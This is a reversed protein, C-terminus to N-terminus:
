WQVGGTPLVFRGSPQDLVIDSSVENGWASWGAVRERAFLEIRPGPSVREIMTRMEAPKESHRGKQAMFSSRIQIRKGLPTRAYPIKGRVGFLCLEHTNRIYQGLGPAGLKIWAVNNVYRFGWNQMCTLGIPLLGSPVWLWLHADEDAIQQGVPLLLIEDSTMLPYHVDPSVRKSWGSKGNSGGRLPWPPDAYVTKYRKKSEEMSMEVQFLVV